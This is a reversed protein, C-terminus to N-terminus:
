QMLMTWVNCGRGDEAERSDARVEPLNGRSSGSSTENLLREQDWILSVTWLLM